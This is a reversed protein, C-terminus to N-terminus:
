LEVRNFKDADDWVSDHSIAIVGKECDNFYNVVKKKLTKDLSSTCEDLLFIPRDLMISIMIALRQKEGGSLQWIDKEFLSKEFEFYDSLKEDIVSNFTNNNFKSIEELYKKVSLKRLSNEQDVYAFHKRIEAIDYDSYNKDNILYQGSDFKQFGLLIRFITSKGIGSKGVLLIKAQNNFQLSFKDLIKKDKYELSINNLKIELM